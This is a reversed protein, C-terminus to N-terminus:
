KNENVKLGSNRLIKFIVFLQGVHDKFSGNNLVLIDDIYAKVGQIDGLLENVKEQFIDGSVWLGMPLVNYQFKVFETFIATLDKAGPSLQITYYGM